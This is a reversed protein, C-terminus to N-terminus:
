GIEIRRAVPITEDSKPIVVTLIGNEYNAEIGESKVDKPLTWSRSFSKQFRFSSNESADHDFSVSIRGDGIDVKLDEKSVGPTAVTIVHSGDVNDTHVRPGRINSVPSAMPDFAEFIDFFDRFEGLLPSLSPNYKVLSM